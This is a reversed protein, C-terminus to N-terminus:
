RPLMDDAGSLRHLVVETVTRPRNNAGGGLTVILEDGTIAAYRRLISGTTPSVGSLVNHAVEGPYVNLTGFYGLYGRIGAAIQEDNLEEGTFNERGATPFHVGVFGGPTYVIVSPARVNSSQIEGTEVDVRREEIHRWFGVVERYAPSLNEITPIREWTWRTDGQAHPEDTSTLVLRDGVLEFERSFSIGRVSPSVGDESQFDIRDNTADVAYRGWFGGVNELTWAPSNRPAEPEERGNGSFYEFVYGAADIVLLGRQGGVRNPEGSAVDKELGVLFWSSVLGAARDNSQAQAVATSLVLLFLAVSVPM